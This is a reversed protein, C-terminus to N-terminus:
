EHDKKELKDLQQKVVALEYTIKKIEEKQQSIKLNLYFVLCYILFIFVLFVTNVPVSISLLISARDILTPFLTLLLVFLLWLIWVVAYHINMKQKIINKVIFYFTILICIILTIRLQINM